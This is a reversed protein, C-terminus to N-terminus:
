ADHYIFKSYLGNPGMLTNAGEYDLKSTSEVDWVIYLRGM